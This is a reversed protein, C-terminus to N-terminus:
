DILKYMGDGIEEFLKTEKSVAIMLGKLSKRITHDVVSVPEAAHFTYLKQEVIKEYIDKPTLGKTNRKLVHVIAEEITKSEM